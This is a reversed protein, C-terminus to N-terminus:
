DRSGDEGGNRNGRGGGNRGGRREQRRDFRQGAAMGILRLYGEAVEARIRMGSETPRLDITMRDGGDEFADFQVGEGDEDLGLWQKANVVLQMPARKVRGRTNDKPEKLIDILEKTKDLADSGGVAIWANRRGVGLYVGIEDGFVKAADDADRAVMRHFVVDEYTEYDFEIAGVENNIDDSFQMLVEKIGANIKQGGVLRTGGVITFKGPEGYFQMFVDTHAEAVTDRLAEIGATIAPALTLEDSGKNLVTPLWLEFGDLMERYQQQDREILPASMSFSLPTEDQVLREFHSRKTNVRKM